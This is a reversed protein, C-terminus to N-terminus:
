YIFKLFDDKVGRIHYFATTCHLAIRHWVLTIFQLGVEYYTIVISRWVCFIAIACLTTLDKYFLNINVTSSTMKTVYIKSFQHSNKNYFHRFFTKCELTMKAFLSSSLWILAVKFSAKINVKINWCGWSAFM